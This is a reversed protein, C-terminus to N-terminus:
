KWWWSFAWELAAISTPDLEPYKRKLQESAWKAGSQLSHSNWDPKIQNLEDLLQKVKAELQQAVDSGFESVLRSIDEKPYPAIGYGIYLPIATNINPNLNSM